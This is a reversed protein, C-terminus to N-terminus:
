ESKSRSRDKALNTINSLFNPMLLSPHGLRYPPLSIELGWGLCAGIFVLIAITKPHSQAAQIKFSLAANRQQQLIQKAEFECRFHEVSM